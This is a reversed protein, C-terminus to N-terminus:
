LLNAFIMKIYLIEIFKIEMFWLDIFIIYIMFPFAILVSQADFMIQMLFVFYSHSIILLPGIFAPKIWSCLDLYALNIYWPFYDRHDSFCFLFLCLMIITFSLSSVIILLQSHIVDRSIYSIINLIM